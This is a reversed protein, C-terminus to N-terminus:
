QSLRAAAIRGHRGSQRVFRAHAPEGKGGQVGMRGAGAIGRRAAFLLVGAAAMVVVM